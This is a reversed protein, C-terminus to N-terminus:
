PRDRSGDQGAPAGAEAQDLRRELRRLRQDLDGILRVLRVAERDAQVSVEELRDVREVQRDIDRFAQDRLSRQVEGLRSALELLAQHVWENNHQQQDMIPRVYWVTPVDHWLRRLRALIRHFLSGHLVFVPEPIRWTARVASLYAGLPDEVVGRRRAEAIGILEHLTRTVDEPRDAQGLVPTLEGREIAELAHRYAALLGRVEDASNLTALRRKEAPRFAMLVELAPLHKIAYRLRNRHYWAYYQASDRVTSASERHIAVAAPDYVVRYGAARARTCYDAEEFYAPFFREDLGGLADFVDRRLALAAGTVYDVDAVTNFQGEDAQRYGHHDALFLPSPLIGGAHQITVRDPYLIKSGVVAIRPDAAFRRLVQRCWGRDIEADQNVLGVIPARSTRVGTNVGGAFGQNTDNQIVKVTPFRDRVHEATGDASANDVVIVEHDVQEQELAHSLCADIWDRGNWSVVVLSIEPTM